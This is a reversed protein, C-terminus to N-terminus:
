VRQCLHWLQYKSRLPPDIHKVDKLVEFRYLHIWPSLKQEILKMLPLDPHKGTLQKTSFYWDFLDFFESKELVEEFDGQFFEPMIKQFKCSQHAWRALRECEKESMLFHAGFRKYDLGCFALALVWCDQNMPALLVSEMEIQHLKLSEDFPLKLGAAKSEVLDLAFNFPDNSKQLESWLYTAGIESLQMQHLTKKLEPSFTMKYKRAFRYARLFRVPDRLFDVGAPYLLKEELHLEGGLPDLFECKGNTEFRIGMANLTFDRRKIAESFPLKFDFQATFNKHHLDSTYIEIRPPSFEFTNKKGELKIVEYPMFSVKGFRTLKKGLEKWSEKSFALTQHTLEIDWDSSLSKTRVYDRVIGGVLTTIYGQNALERQIELFEPPLIFQFHGLDITM